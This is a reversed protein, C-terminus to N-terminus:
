AFVNERDTNAEELDEMAAFNLFHSPRHLEHYFEKPNGLTVGYKM